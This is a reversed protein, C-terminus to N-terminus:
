GEPGQRSKQTRTGEQLAFSAWVTVCPRPDDRLLTKNWSLNHANQVALLSKETLKCIFSEASPTMFETKLTIAIRYPSMTVALSTQDAEFIGEQAGDKPRMLCVRITRVRDMPVPQHTLKTKKGSTFWVSMVLGVRWASPKSPTVVLVIMRASLMKPVQSEDVKLIKEAASAALNQWAQQRSIRKASMGAKQNLRSTLHELVQHWNRNKSISRCCRHNKIFSSDCGFGDGCRLNYLLHWLHPWIRESTCDKQVTEHAFLSSLTLCHHRCASQFTRSGDDGDSCERIEAGDMAHGVPRKASGVRQAEAGDVREPDWEQDKDQCERAQIQKMLTYCEQAAGGCAKEEETLHM